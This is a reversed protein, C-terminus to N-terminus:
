RGDAMLIGSSGKTFVGPVVISTEVGWRALEGSYNV